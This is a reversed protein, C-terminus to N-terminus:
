IPPKVGPRQHALCFECEFEEALKVVWRPAGDDRLTRALVRNSCRAAKRHIKHLLEQMKQIEKEDPIREETAEDEAEPRLKGKKVGYAEADNTDEDLTCLKKAIEPMNLKARQLPKAWNKAM